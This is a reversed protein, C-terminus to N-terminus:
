DKHENLLSISVRLIGYLMLLLIALTVVSKFKEPRQYQQSKEPKSIVILNKANQTASIKAEELKILTQRYLERNFMLESKLIEFAFKDRNLKEGAGRGGALSKKLKEIEKKLKKMEELLSRIRPSNPTLLVRKAQYEVEAKILESELSAMLESKAKIDIDPDILGARNQFEIIKKISAIYREKYKEEQEKLFSVLKSANQKEVSNLAQGSIAVLREVIEKSRDPDAHFFSLKLTASGEDYVTMIDRTYRALLNDRNLKWMPIRTDKYLRQLPDMMPGSYYSTLNFERDIEEFVEHTRVYISLLEADRKAHSNQGLLTAGIDSIQQKDSLDRVSLIASSEFKETQVIIIYYSGVLFFLLFLLAMPDKKFRM